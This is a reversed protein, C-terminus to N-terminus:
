QNSPFAFTTVIELANILNTIEPEELGFISQLYLKYREIKMREIDETTLADYEPAYMVIADVYRYREIGKVFKHHVMEDERWIIDEVINEKETLTTM